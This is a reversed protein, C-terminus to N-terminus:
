RHGILSFKDWQLQEAAECAYFCYESLLSMPCDPSRHGSLGHGPFDLALVEVDVSSSSSSSSSSLRNVISPSLIHFSACNDLWGHLCIFKKSENEAADSEAPSTRVSTPNHNLSLSSWYKAALELGDSCLFKREIGTRYTCPRSTSTSLAALTAMTVRGMVM